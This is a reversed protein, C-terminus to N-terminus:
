NWKDMGESGVLSRLRELDGLTDVDFPRGDCHVESVLEPRVRMVARAGEDGDIPLISWVSSDLRVPPARHDDLLATAIPLEDAAAVAQWASAPVLPQDGVGVVISEHGAMEAWRVAVRLSRAQGAEWDHNHLVTVGDPLEGLVDAAGTVVITEDLGAALAHAVSWAIISRGGVKALLKHDDGAFRTGGGAALVVAATTVRGTHRFWEGTNCM